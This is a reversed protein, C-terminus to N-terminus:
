IAWGEDFGTEHDYIWEVGGEWDFEALTVEYVAAAERVVKEGEVKEGEVKEGKVKEVKLSERKKGQSQHRLYNIYGNLVREVERGQAYLEDFTERSIYGEDLATYLHDLVENVSGRSIRCLQIDEQYHYRGYGEAINATVSVAADRIQATLGYTEQKPWGKSVQYIRHRFQRALKWVTLEEFSRFEAMLRSGKGKKGKERKGKKGKERKGKRGKKRKRKCRSRWYRGWLGSPRTAM